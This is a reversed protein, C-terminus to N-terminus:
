RSVDPDQGLLLLIHQTNLFLAWCPFCCLLLVLTGRQLIVGMHKKNPSGYTQTCMALIFGNTCFHCGVVGM